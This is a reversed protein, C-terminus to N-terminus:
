RCEAEDTRRRTTCEPFTMVQWATGDANTQSIQYSWRGEALGRVIEGVAKRHAHLLAVQGVVRAAVAVLRTFAILGIVAVPGWEHSALFEHM